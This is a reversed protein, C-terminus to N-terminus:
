DYSYTSNSAPSIGLMGGIMSLAELINSISRQMNQSQSTQFNERLMRIEMSIKNKENSFHDKLDPPLDDDSCNNIIAQINDLIRLTSDLSQEIQWGVVGNIALGPISTINAQASTLLRGIAEIPNDPCGQPNINAAHSILSNQFDPSIKNSLDPAYSDSNVRDNNILTM